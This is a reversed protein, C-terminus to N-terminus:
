GPGPLDLGEGITPSDDGFVPRLRRMELVGHKHSLTFRLNQSQFLSAFRPTHRSSPSVHPHAPRLLFPPRRARMLGASRRFFLRDLNLARHQLGKGIRHESDLDRLAMHHKSVYRPLDPHVEDLDERSVPHQNLKRRVIQRSPANKVPILSAAPKLPVNKACPAAIFTLAETLLIHSFHLIMLRCPTTRTM